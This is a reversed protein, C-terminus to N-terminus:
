TTTLALSDLVTLTHPDLRVNAAAVVAKGAWASPLYPASPAALSRMFEFVQTEDKPSILKEPEMLRFAVVVTMFILTGLLMMVERLRRAPFLFMLGTTLSMSFAAPVLLFPLTAFMALFYYGLGAHKEMGFSAYLPVCMLVVMWSSGVVAEVSKAMFVTVPRIPMAMLLHLDKSLFHSSLSTMVNSYVLMFLFTMFAMSFMRSVLFPGVMPQRYFYHFVLRLLGFVTSLLVLGVFLFFLTRFWPFGGPRRFSNITARWPTGLLVLLPRM